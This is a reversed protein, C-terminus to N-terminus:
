EFAYAHLASGSAVLVLGSGSRMPPTLFVEKPASGVESARGSPDIALV